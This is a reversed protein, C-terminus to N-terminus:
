RGGFIAGLLGRAVQAGITGWTRGGLSQGLQRWLAAALTWGVNKAIKGGVGDMISPTNQEELQTMKENIKATLIENASEPDLTTNYKGILPSVSMFGQLESETLTDMRSHPPAIMTQVLATPIWREDLTTIFAEGIGLTTLDDAVHYYNTIPFNESAKEIADRDKATFARLAHQVKLGLQALISSPIDIPNQTCFFIGVGKSRILKIIMEIESLLAPSITDFILHAEDIILVLKPKEADGVEPFTSYIESLLSLMFTSFLKPRTMMDMLRIINVYGKGTDDIRLFDQVDFSPEGFFISAWQGELEIIKRMITGVTATSIMGYDKEIEEKGENALYQLVKKVDSLDVLLLGHDDCYKFILAMVSEQTDNLELLRAFLIPWFESITARLKVGDTGTLTYFETPYWEGKWDTESLNTLRATIKENMMWPMALGSADGKIDMMITPIGNESLSEIIKQLTKTKGTGTAWAILGHRNMISLPLSISAEPVVKGQYMAKGLLLTKWKFTYSAQIDEVFSM